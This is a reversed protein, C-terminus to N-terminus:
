STGPSRRRSRRTRARACRIPPSRRRAKGTRLYDIFIKGHRKAKTLDRRLPRPVVEGDAGGGGQHLEQYRGLRARAQDAARRAARQRRDDQHFTHLGLEELLTNLLHVGEVLTEWSVDDAPDFDFIIRDPCMLKPKSSGFPHLELAGMQLLAVLAPTSNAMMYLTTGASEQVKVREIVENVKADPHKQYFCPKEWGNPCRM